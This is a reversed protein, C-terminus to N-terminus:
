CTLIRSLNSRKLFTPNFGGSGGRNKENNAPSFVWFKGEELATALSLIKPPAIIKQSFLIESTSNIWKLSFQYATGEISIVNFVFHKIM